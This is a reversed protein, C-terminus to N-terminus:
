FRKSVGLGARLDVRNAFRSELTARWGFGRVLGDLAAGALVHDQDLIDVPAAAKLASRRGDAMVLGASRDGLQEVHVYALQLSPLMGPWHGFGELGLRYQARGFSAEGAAPDSGAYRKLDVDLYEAAAFPGGRWGAFAGPSVLGMQMSGGRVKAKGAGSATSGYAGPRQLRNLRVKPAYGAAAQLYAGGPAAYGAYFSGGWGWADIDFGGGADDKLSQYGIATGIRTGGRGANLGYAGSWGGAARLSAPARAETELRSWGGNSWFSSGSGYPTTRLRGVQGFGRLEEPGRRLALAPVAATRPLPALGRWGGAAFAGSAPDWGPQGCSAAQARGLAAIDLRAPLTPAGGEVWCAGGDNRRGPQEGLSLWAASAAM